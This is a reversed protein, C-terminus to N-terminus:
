KQAIFDAVKAGARKKKWWIGGAMFAASVVVPLADTELPVATANLTIADQATNGLTWSYSGPVIGLTALTQGTYTSSGSITTGPVYGVPLFLEYPVSSFTFGFPSGLDSTAFSRETGNGISPSGSVGAVFINVNGQGIALFASGLGASPRVGGSLTGTTENTFGNLDSVSGSYSFTVGSGNETATVTIAPIAGAKQATLAGAL